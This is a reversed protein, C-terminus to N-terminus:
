RQAEPLLGDLPDGHGLRIAEARYALASRLYTAAALAAAEDNPKFASHMVALQQVAMYRHTPLKTHEQGARYERWIARQVKGPLAKWHRLCMLM